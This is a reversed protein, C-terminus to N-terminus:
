RPLAGPPYLMLFGSGDPMVDFQRRRYGQQFGSVPLLEPEGFVPTGSQEGHEEHAPAEVAFSVRLLSGGRDYYLFAGDTSWVPHSGGDYTVRHRVGSPPLPEVWIEHAGTENSVYAFWQGDPSIHSSHQESGPLDILVRTTSAGLHLMSIGYDRDGAQTIFSIRRGDPTTSEASLGETLRTAEGTGDARRLYLVNGGAQTVLFVIHEGDRTWMPAWNRGTGVPPLARRRDLRELPAIWIRQLGAGPEEPPDGLEFAVQTGDPSVRPAFVSRPLNGLRRVEGQPDVLAVAFGSGDRGGSGGCAALLTFAIWPLMRMGYGGIAQSRPIM